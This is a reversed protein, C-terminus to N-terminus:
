EVGVVSFVGTIGTGNESGSMINITGAFMKGADAATQNADIEDIWLIISYTASSPIIEDTNPDKTAKPLTKFNKLPVALRDDTQGPQKM